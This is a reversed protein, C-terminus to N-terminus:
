REFEILIMIKRLTSNKNKSKKMKCIKIFEEANM